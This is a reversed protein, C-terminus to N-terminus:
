KSLQQRHQICFWGVKGEINLLTEGPDSCKQVVCKPKNQKDSYKSM